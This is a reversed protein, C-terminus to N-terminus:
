NIIVYLSYKKVKFSKLLYIIDQMINVIHDQYSQKTIVIM